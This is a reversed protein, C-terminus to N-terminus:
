SIKEYARALDLQIIMGGRRQIKLTHIMDHAHIINDLIKRGEVFGV